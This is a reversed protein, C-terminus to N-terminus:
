VKICNKYLTIDNVDNNGFNQSLTLLALVSVIGIVIIVAEMLRFCIYGIALSENQKKLYPFLAIATGVVSVVLILECIAGLIIQNTNQQGTILYNAEKLIPNYLVLGIISSIAAVIFLIGIIIANKRDIEKM